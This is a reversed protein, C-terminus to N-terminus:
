AFWQSAILHLVEDAPQGVRPLVQRHGVVRVGGRKQCWQGGVGDSHTAVSRMSIVNYQTHVHDNAM